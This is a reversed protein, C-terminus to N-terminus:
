MSCGIMLGHKKKFFVKDDTVLRLQVQPKAKRVDDLEKNAQQIPFIKIVTIDSNQVLRKFLM